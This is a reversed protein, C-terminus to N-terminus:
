KNLSGKQSVEEIYAVITNIDNVDDDLEIDFHEEINVLLMMVDVSSLGLRSDVGFLTDEGLISDIDPNIKQVMGLITNIIEQQM